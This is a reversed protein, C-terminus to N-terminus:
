QNVRPGTKKDATKNSNKNSNKNPNKNMARPLARADNVLQRCDSDSGPGADILPILALLPNVMGLAIAGFVRLAMRGKDVSVEPRAFSGRVHIPSRLALLSTDKTKQNLTLDLTEQSLDINGTGIITTIETDLVLAEVQMVGAKVEFDGVACRLKVPKDGTVNLQLIEWLHLGARELMMRSIEGRAVVLGVKGNSTALMRRVSNGKGALDFTGNIQGISSKNLEARPLLQAILIKRARIKASALIPDQRGDLSVVGSLRGGAVGFSLPDLTLMSDRLSLHTVLDELPLEAASIAKAKLSVEADVSGWRDTKFPQNPLVRANGPTAEVTQSPEPAADIAAKVSGSRAGILPGLDAFDLRDSVLDAKMLPRKGGTDVQLSGAIDSQGIRGSFDDYRWTQRAHVIHGETVYAGTEPFVIGLLPFLQALSQGRLVLRMDMASFKLLSTITGDVQASTKGVTLEAKLPYPTKEDNLGLVPGGTGSAKLPLGKFKGQATFVLGDTANQTGSGPQTTSLEARISTKQGADDYGVTGHDLALRGIHLRATEDQQNVDLLWNKRGDAGQELFIVPRELRVESVVLKQRLLEPLDIVIDVAAASVMQREKAWTPNAFSVAKAHLSPLPWAFSVEIDGGVVLERGTKDLTIREIPGRLWNWGFVAIYLAGLFVPMMLIGATWRLLRLLTM